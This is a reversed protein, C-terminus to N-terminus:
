DSLAMSELVFDRYRDIVAALLDEKALKILKEPPTGPLFPEVKEEFAAKPTRRGRVQVHLKLEVANKPLLITYHFHDTKSRRFDLRLGVSRGKRTTHRARIQYNKLEAELAEFAPEAIFESFQEFNEIAELRSRELIAIDEFCGKLQEKWDPDAMEHM